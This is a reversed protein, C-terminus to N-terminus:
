RGLRVKIIGRGRWKDEGEGGKRNRRYGEGWGLEEGRGKEKM